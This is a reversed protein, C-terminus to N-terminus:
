NINDSKNRGINIMNLSKWQAQILRNSYFSTEEYVDLNKYYSSTSHSNNAIFITNYLDTGKFYYTNNNKYFNKYLKVFNMRYELWVHDFNDFNTNNNFFFSLFNNMNTNNIPNANVSYQIIELDDNLPKYQINPNIKVFDKMTVPSICLDNIGEPLEYYTSNEGKVAILLILLSSTLIKKISPLKINKIFTFKTEMSIKNNTIFENSDLYNVNNHINNNIEREMSFIEIATSFNILNTLLWIKTLLL